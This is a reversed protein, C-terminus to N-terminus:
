KDKEVEQIIWMSCHFILNACLLVGYFIMLSLNKDIFYSYNFMGFLFVIFCIIFKNM